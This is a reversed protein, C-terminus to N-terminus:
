KDPHKTFTEFRREAVIANGACYLPPTPLCTFTKEMRGFDPTLGGDARCVKHGGHAENPAVVSRGTAMLDNIPPLCLMVPKSTSQNQGDPLNEIAERFLRTPITKSSRRFL